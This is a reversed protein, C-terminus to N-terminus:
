RKLHPLRSDMVKLDMPDDGIIKANGTAPYKKSNYKKMIDIWMENADESKIANILYEFSISWCENGFVKGDTYPSYMNGNSAWSPYWTDAETYEAHKGTFTISKFDVSREFTNGKPTKVGM